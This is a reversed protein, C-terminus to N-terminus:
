TTATKEVMLDLDHGEIGSPTLSVAVGDDLVFRITNHNAFEVAIIRKGKLFESVESQSSYKGDSSDWGDPFSASAKQVDLPLFEAAQATRLAALDQTAIKMLPPHSKAAAGAAEAIPDKNKMPNETFVIHVNCNALIAKATIDSAALLDTADSKAFVKKIEM